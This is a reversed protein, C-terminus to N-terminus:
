ENGLEVLGVGELFVRQGGKLGAKRASAEDPFRPTGVGMKGLGSQLASDVDQKMPNNYDMPGSLNKHLGGLFRLKELEQEQISKELAVKPNNFVARENSLDFLTAGPAVNQYMKTGTAQMNAIRPDAATTLLNMQKATSGGSPILKATNGAIIGRLTQYTQPNKQPDTDYLDSTVDSIVGKTQYDQSSRLEKGKAAQAQADYLTSHSKYMDAENGLRKTDASMREMELPLEASQKRRALELYARDLANQVARQQLMMRNQQMGILADSFTSGLRNIAYVDQPNGELYSLPM